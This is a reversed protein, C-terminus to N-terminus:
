CPPWISRSFGPSQPDPRGRAAPFGKLFTHPKAGWRKPPNGPRGPGGLGGFDVIGPRDEWVLDPARKFPRPTRKFPGPARKFPGPARKFPGPAREFPGPALGQKGPLNCFHSPRPVWLQQLHKGATWHRGSKFCLNAFVIFFAKAQPPWHTPGM